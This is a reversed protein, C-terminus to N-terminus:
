PFHHDLHCQIILHGSPTHFHAFLMRFEARDVARDEGEGSTGILQHCRCRSMLTVFQNRGPYLANQTTLPPCAPTNAPRVASRGSVQAILASQNASREAQYAFLVTRDSPECDSSNRPTLIRAMPLFLCTSLLAMFRILTITSAINRDVNKGPHRQRHAHNM